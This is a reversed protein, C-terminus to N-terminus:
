FCSVKNLHKNSAKLAVPPIGLATQNSLIDVTTSWLDLSKWWWQNLSRNRDNLWSASNWGIAQRGNLGCVWSQTSAKALVIPRNFGYSPSNLVMLSKFSITSRSASRSLWSFDCLLLWFGTSNHSFSFSCEPRKVMIEYSIEVAVLSSFYRSIWHNSKLVMLVRNGRIIDSFFNFNFWSRITFSNM